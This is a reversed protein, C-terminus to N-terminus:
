SCAFMARLSCYKLGRLAAFHIVGLASNVILTTLGKHACQFNCLLPGNHLLVTVPVSATSPHATVNPLTLLPRPPSRGWWDGGRQVLHLLGGM